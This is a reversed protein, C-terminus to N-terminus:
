AAARGKQVAHRLHDARSPVPDRDKYAASAELVAVRLALQGSARLLAAVRLVSERYCYWCFQTGNQYVTM